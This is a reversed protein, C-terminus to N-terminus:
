LTDVPAHSSSRGAFVRTVSHGLHSSGLMSQGARGGAQASPTDSAVLLQSGVADNWKYTWKGGHM